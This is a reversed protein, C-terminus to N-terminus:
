SGFISFVAALAALIAAIVAGIAEMIAAFISAIAEVIAAFWEGVADVMVISCAVIITMPTATAIAYVFSLTTLAWLAVFVLCFLLLSAIIAVTVRSRGTNQHHTQQETQKSQATM